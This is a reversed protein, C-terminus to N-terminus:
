WDGWLDFEKASVVIDENPDDIYGEFDPQGNNNPDEMAFPGDNGVVGNSRRSACVMQGLEAAYIESVPRVYIKKM